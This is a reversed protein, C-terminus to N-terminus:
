FGFGAFYHDFLLFESVSEPTAALVNWEVHKLGRALYDFEVRRRFHILHPM